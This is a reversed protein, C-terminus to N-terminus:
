NLSAKLEALKANLDQSYHFTLVSYGAVYQLDDRDIEDRKRQELSDHVSGDCFVALKQATYVFDPKCNAEAILLQAIDPLKIGQQYIAELVVREYDSSPDTQGYLKQYQEERSVGAAHRDLRSGRLQELFGGILHRNLLAHDWQNGYSLLCEYCAQACSDKEKHFHCVEQAADALKQFSQPDELIQSLVGAGGEAAEWFLIQNGKEGLRETGLESSELKYLNQISRALAYQLTATFAEPNQDPLDTVEILLINSTDKVLLHVDTEISAASNAQADASAVWRGTGTDLRFGWEKTSRLGRNLRMMEATEGYTLKLLPTNDVDAVIASEKRQDTFRFYTNIQYGSKLRDEEDCTIRERRRTSMTDMELAKTINAPKGQKDATPKQGCNECIDVVSTHFYGCGHCVVLRQYENEAGKTFRKTRDIKFKSGEYYLINGPAMERIALNRPRSIYDGKDRGTPIYARVPLRPFNFGPLFGEAAFYRYPYFEFQSNNKTQNQGVLIDIQRQAEKQSRDAVDKEEKTANGATVRNITKLAEDRQEVADSYLKRWRDCARDFATLANDLTQELWAAGYWSVRGLDTQCFADALISEAADLCKQFTVPEQAAQLQAVLDAKLPYGSQELDLIQNMSDGFNIGAKSLWISYIHSKVLDQNALELKPPAVAGAVMEAQHEYFYRDHGSGAGAYTIVMAAQGSRGARGSRQAYNAPSPPVNRMHVVSLDSIDIGLEMTPSCFLAALKGARFSDEREQRLYSPVQGTHERGQLKQIKAATEVYFDQFFKNVLKSRVKSEKLSKTGLPDHPLEQVKQAQWILVDARLQIDDGQQSLYGSDRLAAVLTQILSDYSDVKLNETLWPWAAPSRLFKGIKSTATLKVSATRSDGSKFTARAAEHLEENDGISWPEKLAQNVKRKLEETGSPQLLKADIALEKRLMELLPLIAGYRQEPTAQSLIPHHHKAFIPEHGCMEMLDVYDIKLLGSQELNPQVIRWGRRLDEYLRYEILQEFVSQNVKKGNGFEAPSVAYDSQELAMQEVVAAALREHSLTPYKKLAAYLSARLFSTQVFDNFHGAQLSADQRNDTFSLVKAAKSDAPLLNQLRSVTAISLLTTATSRGESSLRSFKAYDKKKGDHIVNCQLCIKLPRPIFWCPTGMMSIQGDSGIFLKRPLDKEHKPDIRRGAKKTEKFWSDPLREWDSEDWLEPQDLTLYGAQVDSDDESDISNPLLPTVINSNSDYKVVYYDHGCERCFILPYLLRNETTAYQGELTLVRRDGPEVTAYVSGGQAIFQHLRFALGTTKSGWLFMEQLTETCREISVGTLEALQGAGAQLSIPTRRILHGDEDQLGFNMEIWASLPHRRFNDLTRDVPLEATLCDRLDESSPVSVDIAQKLTEDIVNSALVEVGFLKSAVGAVTARRQTRDGETSMTASTGICLLEHGCRQRLKRIVMAVDAGQRGRYTHLEDLVLFKLDASEVFKREHTRSLMLELMVYNTLLIHPPNEQIENKRDFKEQGTYQEVRIHSNPVQKLFKDFEEKQSNILANMPYVLIARVAKIEPHRLIDDIIPVVYSLSKGSGTGTTLVYPQQAQAALFAQYQHRYFQFPQNTKSNHFYRACDQHLIEQQVLDTASAGAAYAPNLQILPDKWLQGKGLEADVFSKVRSDRINLFSDVYQHYDDIIEDRLAFIDLNGTPQKAEISLDQNTM